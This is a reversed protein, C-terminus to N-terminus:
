RGECWSPRQPPLGFSSRTQESLCTKLRSIATKALEAVPTLLPWADFKDDPGFTTLRAQHIQQRQNAWAILRNGIADVAIGDPSELSTPVDYLWAGSERDWIQAPGGYDKTVAIRPTDFLFVSPADVNSLKRRLEGKLEAILQDRTRWDRFREPLFELKRAAVTLDERSATTANSGAHNILAIDGTNGALAITGGNPSIAIAAVGESGFGTLNPPSLTGVMKRSQLDWIMGRGRGTTALVQANGDVFSVQDIADTAAGSISFRQSWDATSFVLIDGNTQGEGTGVVLWAGDQSYRASRGAGTLKIAKVERGTAVEWVRATSDDSVTALLTKDPSQVAALTHTKHPAWSKIMKQSALDWLEMRSKDGHGQVRWPRAFLIAFRGSTDTFADIDGPLKTALVADKKNTEINWLALGNSDITLLRKAGIFTLASAKPDAKVSWIERATDASRVSVAKGGYNHGQSEGEGLVAVLKGDPSVAHRVDPDARAPTRVLSSGRSVDWIMVFPDYGSTVLLRGDTSFTMQSLPSKHADLVKMSVGRKAARELAAHAEITYKSSGKPDAVQDGDVLAELALQLALDVDGRTLADRSVGALRRSQEQARSRDVEGRSECRDGSLCMQLDGGISVVWPTQYSATQRVVSRSTRELVERLPIRQSKAAEELFAALFPSGKGPDGDLALAGLDSSYALLTQSAAATSNSATENAPVSPDSNRTTGSARTPAAAVASIQRFGYGKAGPSSCGVFPDNRCADFIALKKPIHALKALIEEMGVVREANRTVCDIVANRPALANVIASNQVVAMGHGSFFIVAEKAHATESAFTEIAEVFRLHDVNFLTTVKFNSAELLASMKEADQVPNVLKTLPADYNSVGVVLAVREAAFLPQIALGILAAAVLTLRVFHLSRSFRSM